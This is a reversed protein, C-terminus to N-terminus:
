TRILDELHTKMKPWESHVVSFMATDRTTGDKRIMHQRLIGEFQAGIRRIAKKSRENEDDTKIQVRKYGLKEFCHELLLYKCNTNIATRWYNPALWTFGIELRKHQESIDMLKTSGIIKGTAQDIIVFPYETGAVRNALATQVYREVDTRTQVTISMYDWIREECAVATIADIDGMTMERLCVIENKLVIQEM